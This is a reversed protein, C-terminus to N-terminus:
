GGSDIAIIIISGCGHGFGDNHAGGGRTAIIIQEIVVFAVRDLEELIVQIFYDFLWDCEVAALTLCAVYDNRM